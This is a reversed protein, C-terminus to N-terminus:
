NVASIYRSWFGESEPVLYQGGFFVDMMEDDSGLYQFTSYESHIYETEPINLTGHINRKLEMASTMFGMILVALIVYRQKKQTERHYSDVMMIM